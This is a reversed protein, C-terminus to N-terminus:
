KEKENYKVFSQNCEYFSYLNCQENSYAKSTALQSASDGGSCQFKLPPPLSWSLADYVAYAKALSITIQSVLSLQKIIKPLSPMEWEKTCNQVRIFKATTIKNRWTLRDEAESSQKEIGDARREELM